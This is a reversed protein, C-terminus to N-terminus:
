LGGWQLLHCMRLLKMMHHLRPNSEEMPKRRKMMKLRLSRLIKKLSPNKRPLHQRKSQHKLHRSRNKPHKRKHSKLHLCLVLHTTDELPSAPLRAAM